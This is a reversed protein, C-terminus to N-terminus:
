VEIRFEAGEAANRVTLRGNMNKEIITKSMFLGIGTGKDPGKTTFYPEFIKDMVEEPIGGANDAITVVGKEGDKSITITVKAGNARNEQLADRANALINLLVQSYENPFGTLELNADNHIDIRIQMDMFSDKILAVTKAVVEQVKFLSQKKDPQFFNRFDNITQSMHNISSMSKSVCSDLEEKDLSSSEYFIKMQQILLALVNLPQRWQHAINNIMEGMAALRSQQLLLRENERLAEVVRLRELTEEKLAQEAKQRRAERAMNDLAFSINAGMKVLLEVQQQDFFDKEEAYLTLAGVVWGEEKVAVSASAKIGYTRGKEHWPLTCPDNLFDNSIYYTGERISIGTPGTSTPKECTSIRLDNLYDTAGSAAVVRVLSSEEDLVGVWSLIFGGLEVAIRCFDRFLSDRDGARVIAQNTESLVAYLRNLRLLNIEARERVSIEELLTEVSDALEVTRDAVRQELEDHTKKLTDMLVERETLSRALKINSYSLKSIIAAFKTFYEMGTALFERSLRPVCKLAAIYEDENFGFRQAQSKFLKYDVPEDDFFFQGSFLNGIHTNGVMIPTAVDWMNNKCKYLKFEGPPIGATLQLDSEICNARSEPHIRHFRTCIDQWGKGVLVNGKLDLIAMPMPALKYFDDMLSQIAQVDIIDALDLNGIDGEPSLISDLKLRVREESNRLANQAQKRETIDHTYIRAVEFMSTFFITEGFVRDKLEIERYLTFDEKRDWKELIGNLDPPIFPNVDREAIGLKELIKQTAPNALTVKGSSNVELVPNPNLLPFSAFHLAREEIQKRETVDVLTIRCEGGSSAALGEIQLFLSLNEEKLLKVECMEKGSNMFVRALFDAFVSRDTAAVFLGFRQGLLRAREVGLLGAGCLNVASIAGNRDLTFYGMPAFDFLDCYKELSNEVEDRVHRLEANQLELEIKHVELEHVLRQTAEESCPPNFDSKKTQLWEEAHRRLEAAVMVNKKDKGTKM